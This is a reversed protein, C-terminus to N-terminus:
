AAVPTGDLVALLHRQFTTIPREHEVALPGVEFRPAGVVAQVQECAFVDEDIFSRAAAVLREADAGPEARVRLDIASRDAALPTVAYSIWFESSSAMLMNPFLLHAGIGHRDREGIHAIPTTGQTIAARGADGGKVPEYSVWHGGLNRHEFRPHDFDALTRDHLYWLHLVDIHNEVFLKWNFTGEIRVRALQQLREPRYSGIHQPWEGLFSEFPEADADPHAFVMGGWCGVAAPVLGWRDPEVDAFQGARQPIRVLAGDDTRFEWGHYPCRLTDDTRGAACVVAMGRHRCFNHFARIVGDHGRVVILPSRGATAEVYSGPTALEDEAAVLQWTHDFLAHQERELWAPDRYAAPPLLFRTAPDDNRLDM